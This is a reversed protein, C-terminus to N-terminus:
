DYPCKLEEKVRQDSLCLDGDGKLVQNKALFEDKEM